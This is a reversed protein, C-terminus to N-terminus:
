FPRGEERRTAALAEMLERGTQEREHEDGIKTIAELAALARVKYEEKDLPPEKIYREAKTFYCSGNVIGKKGAKTWGIKKMKLRIAIGVAQRFRHGDQSAELVRVIAPDAEIFRVVGSLAPFGHIEAGTLRHENTHDNLLAFLRTFAEPHADIEGRYKAAHPDRDFDEASLERSIGM